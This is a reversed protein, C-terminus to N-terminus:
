GQNNEEEDAFVGCATSFLRAKEWCLGATWKYIKPEPEGTWAKLYGCITLIELLVSTCQSHSQSPNLLSGQEPDTIDTLTNSHQWTLCYCESLHYTLSKRFLTNSDIHKIAQSIQLMLSSSIHWLNSTEANCFYVICLWVHFTKM